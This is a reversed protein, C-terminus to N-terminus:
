RNWRINVLRGTGRMLRGAESRAGSSVLVVLGIYGSAVAVACAAFAAWGDPSLWRGVALAVVLCPVITGLIERWLRTTETATIGLEERLLRPFFWVAVCIAAILLGLPVGILGLARILVLVMVAQLAGQVIASIAMERVRGAAFLVSRLTSLLVILALAPGFLLNVANGAFLERPALWIKMFSENLAACTGCGVALAYGVLALLRMSVARFKAKDMHGHLHALGPMFALGVRETLMAVVEWARRTLVILPTWANGLILGVLLADINGILQNGAKAALTWGTLRFLHLAGDLRFVLPLRFKLRCLFLVYPWRVLAEVAFRVVTGAPISILGYGKLLMVVTTGIGAVAGFVFFVTHAVNRQLGQQVAGPAGAIVMLGVGLGALAFAWSLDTAAQGTVSFWGPIFVALGAAILMPLIGLAGNVLLGMFVAEGLLRADKRGYAWAVDRRILLNINGEALTLWALLNGTALWAGYLEYEINALYLPVLVIGSVLMLGISVYQFVLNTITGVRRSPSASGIM